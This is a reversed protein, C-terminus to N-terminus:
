ATSQQVAATDIEPWNKQFAEAWLKAQADAQEMEHTTWISKDVLLFGNPFSVYAGPEIYSRQCELIDWISMEWEFEEGGDIIRGFVREDAVEDIWGYNRHDSM